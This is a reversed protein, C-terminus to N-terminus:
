ASQTFICVFNWSGEDDNRGRLFNQPPPEIRQSIILLFGSIAGALGQRSKSKSAFLGLSKNVGFTGVTSINMRFISFLIGTSTYNLEFNLM